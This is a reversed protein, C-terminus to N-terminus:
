GRRKTKRRKAQAPEADLGPRQEAGTVPTASVWGAISEGRGRMAALNEITMAHPDLSYTLVLLAGGRVELEAWFYEDDAGAWWRDPEDESGTYFTNREVRLRANHILQTGVPEDALDLMPVLPHAAAALDPRWAGGIWSLHISDLGPNVVIAPLRDPEEGVPVTEVAVAAGGARWTGYPEAPDSWELGDIFWGPPSCRTHALLAEADSPGFQVILLAPRKDGLPKGCIQCDVPYLCRLIRELPEDGLRTQLEANVRPAPHAM